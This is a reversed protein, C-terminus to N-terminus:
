PARHSAPALEIGCTGCYKDAFGVPHGNACRRQLNGFGKRYVSTVVALGASYFAMWHGSFGHWVVASPPGGTSMASPASLFVGLFFVAFNALAYAFFGYTVYRLWLPCDYLAAKWIDQRRTGASLKHVFVVVPLWLPFIGVHLGFFLTDGGPPPGFFSLVHVVLSVILGCAAYAMLPLLIIEM